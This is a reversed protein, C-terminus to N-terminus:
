KTGYHFIYYNHHLFRALTYYQTAPGNEFSKKKYKLM